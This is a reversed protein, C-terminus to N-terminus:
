HKPKWGWPSRSKIECDLDGGCVTWPVIDCQDEDGGVCNCTDGPTDDDDCPVIDQPFRPGPLGRLDVVNLSLEDAARYDMAGAPSALALAALALAKSNWRM